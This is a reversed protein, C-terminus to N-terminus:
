LHFPYAWVECNNGTTSSTKRKGWIYYTGAPLIGLAILGSTSEGDIGQQIMWTTAGATNGQKCGIALPQGANYTQSISVISTATLTFTESTASWTTGFQIAKNVLNTGTFVNAIKSNLANIADAEKGIGDTLLSVNPRETMDPITITQKTPTLTKTSTAM